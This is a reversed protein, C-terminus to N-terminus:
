EYLVIFSTEKLKHVTHFHNLGDIKFEPYVHSERLKKNSKSLSMDRISVTEKMVATVDCSSKQCFNALTHQIIRLLFHM